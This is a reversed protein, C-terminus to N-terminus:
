LIYYMKSNGRREMRVYRLDVLVDMMGRLVYEPEGILMALETQNFGEGDPIIRLLELIDNTKGTPEHRGMLRDLWKM